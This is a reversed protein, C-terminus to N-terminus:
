VSPIARPSGSSSRRSSTGTVRPREGPSPRTIRCPAAQVVIRRVIPEDTHELGRGVAYLLLKRTLTKVFEEPRRVIAGRLEGPGKFLTGDPLTDSADIPKGDGESERWRGIADFNELGFGYPDMRAHCVACAPNARHRVLRERVSLVEAKATDDLDPVNPPPPPPPAGLLNELIWKGRLVPSTRTAYSTVTLISGHGLLGRGELDELLASFGRDFPPLLKTRLDRFNHAHTDWFADDRAWNVTVLGVGAEVLRRALLLGQGFSNRGYRDRLRDPERALDFARRARASTVLQFARQYEERFAGVRAEADLGRRRADVM